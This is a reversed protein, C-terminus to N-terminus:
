QAAEAAMARWRDVRDAVGIRELHAMDLRQRHGEEDALANAVHVATVADLRPEHAAGPDHHYAVAEVIPHPSGV